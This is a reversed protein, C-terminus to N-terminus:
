EAARRGEPRDPESGAPPAPEAPTPRAPVALGRVRERRARMREWRPWEQQRKRWQWRRGATIPATLVAGVGLGALAGLWPGRGSCISFWVFLLILPILLTCFLIVAVALGSLVATPWREQRAMRRSGDFLLIPVSAVFLVAALGAALTAAVKIARVTPMPDMLGGSLGLVAGIGGLVAIPTVLPPPHARDHLRAWYPHSAPPRKRRVYEAM